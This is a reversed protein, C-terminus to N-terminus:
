PSSQPNATSPKPMLISPGGRCGAGGLNLGGISIPLDRFRGPSARNPGMLDRHM